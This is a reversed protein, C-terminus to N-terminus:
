GSHDQTWCTTSHFFCHQTLLFNSSHNLWLMVKAFGRPHESLSIYSWCRRFQFFHDPGKYNCTLCYNSTPHKQPLLCPHSCSLPWICLSLFIEKLEPPNQANDCLVLSLTFTYLFFPLIVSPWQVGEVIEAAVLGPLWTLVEAAIPGSTLVQNIVTLKQKKNTKQKIRM